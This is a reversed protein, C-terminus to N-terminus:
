GPAAPRRRGPPRERRGVRQGGLVVDGGREVRVVADRDEGLGPHVPVGVVLVDLLREVGGPGAGVQDEVVAAVQDAGQVGLARRQEGHHAAAALPRRGAHEPQAPHGGVAASAKGTMATLSVGTVRIM